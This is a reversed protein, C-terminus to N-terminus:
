VQESRNATADEFEQLGHVDIDHEEDHEDGISGEVDGNGGGGGSGPDDGSEGYTTLPPATGPLVGGSADISFNFNVPKAALIEEVKREM